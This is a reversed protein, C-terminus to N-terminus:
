PLARPIRIGDCGNPRLGYEGTERGGELRSQEDMRFILRAYLKTLSQPM